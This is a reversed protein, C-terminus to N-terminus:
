RVTLKTYQSKSKFSYLVGLSLFGARLNTSILSRLIVLNHQAFCLLRMPKVEQCALFTISHMLPSKCTKFARRPCNSFIIKMLAQVGLAKDQDLQKRSSAQQPNQLCSLSLPTNSFHSTKIAANNHVFKLTFAKRQMCTAMSTHM